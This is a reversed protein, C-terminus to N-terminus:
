PSLLRASAAGALLVLGEPTPEGTEGGLGVLAALSPPVLEIRQQAVGAGAQAGEVV